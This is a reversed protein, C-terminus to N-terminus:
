DFRSMDQDNAEAASEKATDETEMVTTPHEKKPRKENFAYQQIRTDQSMPILEKYMFDKPRDVPDLKDELTALSILIAEETRVTRSGQRPVTNYYKNFLSEVNEVNLKDDNELAPELGMVGGFVVLAHKFQLSKAPVEHVCSGQDSTGITLDYGGEYPCKSFVESLSNAIRVTYGWYIGTELRPQSPPVIKARIKRSKLDIGEPMRVTVRIGPDLKLDVLVDNLLGVNVFSGKGKKAPKPTVVGERFMFDSQQRLHHQSDLPNLLGSLKLDNHIPFFFKRLYQPCELYQLIRALKTCCARATQTGEATDSIHPILFRPNAILSKSEGVTSM